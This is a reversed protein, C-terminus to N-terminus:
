ELARTAAQGLFDTLVLEFDRNVDGLGSKAHAIEHLLTGAFAALCSLQSRKVIIRGTSAEWLGDADGTGFTEPRMTESIVM